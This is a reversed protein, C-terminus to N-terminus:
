GHQPRLPIALTTNSLKSRDRRGACAPVLRGATGARCAGHEYHRLARRMRTRPRRARQPHELFRDPCYAAVAAPSPPAPARAALAAPPMCACGHFSAARRGDRAPPKLIASFITPLLRTAAGAPAPARGCLQPRRRPSCMNLSVSGARGSRKPRRRRRLILALRRAITGPALAPAKPRGKCTSARRHM